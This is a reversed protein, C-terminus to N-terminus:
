LLPLQLIVLERLVSTFIDPWVSFTGNLFWASCSALLELNQRSGFVVVRGADYAFDDDGMFDFLLLREGVLTMEFRDPIEGLELITKPNAPLDHHRRRQM